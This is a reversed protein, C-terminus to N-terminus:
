APATRWALDRFQALKQSETLTYEPDAQVDPIHVTQGELVTRGTLSGRGTSHLTSHRMIEEYESSYGYSPSWRYVTATAASSCHM